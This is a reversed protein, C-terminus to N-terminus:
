EYFSNQLSINITHLARTLPQVGCVRVVGGGGRCGGYGGTVECRFIRGQVDNLGYPGRTALFDGEWRQGGGGM